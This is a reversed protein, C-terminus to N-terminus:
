SLAKSLRFCIISSGLSDQIYFIHSCPFDQFGEPAYSFQRM